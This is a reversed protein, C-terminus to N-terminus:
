PTLEGYGHAMAAAFLPLLLFLAAEAWLFGRVRRIGEAPPTFGADGKLANRWRIM